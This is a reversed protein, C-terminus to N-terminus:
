DEQLGRIRAEIVHILPHWKRVAAAARKRFVAEEAPRNREKAIAADVVASTYARVQRAYAECAKALTEYLEFSHPAVQRSV